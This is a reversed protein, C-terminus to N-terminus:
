KSKKYMYFGVGVIAIGVVISTDFVYKPILSVWTLTARAEVSNQLNSVLTRVLQEIKQSVFVERYSKLIEQVTTTAKINEENLVRNHKENIKKSM